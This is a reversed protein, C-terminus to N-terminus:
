RDADIFDSTKELNFQGRGAQRVHPSDDARKILKEESTNSSSSMRTSYCFAACMEPRVWVLALVLQEKVGQAHLITFVSQHASVCMAAM